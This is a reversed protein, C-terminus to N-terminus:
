DPSFLGKVERERVARRKIWLNASQSRTAITRASTIPAKDIRERTACFTGIEKGIKELYLPHVATRDRVLKFKSVHEMHALFTHM